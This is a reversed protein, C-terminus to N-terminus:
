AGLIKGNPEFVPWYNELKQERLAAKLFRQDIWKDVDIKARTMKFRYAQEVTDKYRAVLFPDFNPNLRVRLPEGDYDEKWHEYPTGARAWLRLVEERNTEDSCWKATRVMVNVARQTLAPYKEAFEETVLVHSQRTYIPNDGKSSYVIRVAGKDRLRLIDMAGIAADLDKTALAALYSGTDLNLIKLDKETLGNDALIRMAPLHMNTGKFISVRKGRLDKVNRIPSDPPVGIYINSRVGTAFILKTKLGAAKAVTAPLDGQFAFDLQKNTLAENVAPGAGKFFFWEVKINDKRFEEELWGKAHTIAVSSGSFGPPNGIAPQAVGVRIVQPAAQALAAGSALAGAQLGLRAGRTALAAAMGGLFKRRQPNSTTKNM